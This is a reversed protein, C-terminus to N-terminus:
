YVWDDNPMYRRVTDLISSAVAFVQQLDPTNEPADRVIEKIATALSCDQLNIRAQWEFFSLNNRAWLSGAASGSHRRAEQLMSVHSRTSGRSRPVLLRVRNVCRKGQGLRHRAFVIASRAFIFCSILKCNRTEKWTQDTNNIKLKIQFCNQTNIFNDGGM